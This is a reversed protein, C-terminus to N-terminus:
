VTRYKETVKVEFWIKKYEAEKKTKYWESHKSGNESIGILHWKLNKNYQNKERIIKYIM